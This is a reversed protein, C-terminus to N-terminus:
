VYSSRAMAWHTNTLALSQLYMRSLRSFTGELARLLELYNIKPWGDLSHGINSLKRPRVGFRVSRLAM